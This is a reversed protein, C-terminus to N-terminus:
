LKNWHLEGQSCILIVRCSHASPFLLISNFKSKNQPPHAPVIIGSSQQSPFEIPLVNKMDGVQFYWM